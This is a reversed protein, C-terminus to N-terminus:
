SGELAAVKAELVEIKAVAEKLAATLVPAFKSYDIMQPDQVEGTKTWTRHITRYQAETGNNETQEVDTLDSEDYYVGEKYVSGDENHVTGVDIMGDKEGSVIGPLVEQVEHAIFGITPM